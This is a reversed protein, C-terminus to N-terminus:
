WPIPGVRNYNQSVLVLDTLNVCGDGTIDAWPDSPPCLGFSRAVITLDLLNIQGDGNADGGVLTVPPLSIIHGPLIQVGKLEAVLYGPAYARVTYTGPPVSSIKYSGDSKTVATPLGSLQVVIGERGNRRELKIIGSVSPRPSIPLIDNDSRPEIQYAGNVYFIVGHVAALDNGVQPTYSYGARNGVRANIGSSDRVEWSTGGLAVHAVTAKGTSILVGELSEATPSGAAIDPTQVTVPQPLLNGSNIVTLASIDTLVTMGDLEAVKATLIVFSGPVPRNLSDAVYVGSWPGSMPEQIVYGAPFLATVLGGTTIIQGHHPSDGTSSRTFQIEHIAVENLAYAPPLLVVLTIIAALLFVLRRNM